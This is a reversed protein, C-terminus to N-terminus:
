RTEQDIEDETLFEPIGLAVDVTYSTALNRLRAASSRLGTTSNRPITVNRLRAAVNRMQLCGEEM